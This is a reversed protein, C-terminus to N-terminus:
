NKSEASAQKIKERLLAFIKKKLEKEPIILPINLAAATPHGGGEGGLSKSVVIMIDKGFNVGTTKSFYRTARVTLRTENKRTSYILAVDAGVDLIGRAASGEFSGVSSWVILWNDIQELKMRAASKIRAIREPPENRMQILQIAQNYDLDHEFMKELLDLLNKELSFFRRSDYLIGTMLTTLLKESPKLQLEFILDVIMEAASSRHEDIYAVDVDNKVFDTPTHHDIVVISEKKHEKVLDQFKGLQNLVNNDVIVILDYKEQTETKYPQDIFQILKQTHKSLSDILLDIQVSPHLSQIVFEMGFISAVSDPDASTHGLIAVTQFTGEQLKTILQNKANM